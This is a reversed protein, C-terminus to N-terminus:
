PPIMNQYQWETRFDESFPLFRLKSILDERSLSSGYWMLDHRPLGTRHSLLDILTARESAFTDKLKFEPFYERVPKKFDIKGEDKLIGLVTATFAKSNSGIAFLTESTVELKNEVDRYGFGKAYYM